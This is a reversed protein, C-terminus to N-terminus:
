LDAPLLLHSKETRLSRFRKEDATLLAKANLKAALVIVSADTLSLRLSSNERILRGIHAWDADVTPEVTFFGKALGELFDNQASVGLHRRILHDAEPLVLDPVMISLDSRRFLRVFDVHHADSSDYLAYVAGATAVGIM